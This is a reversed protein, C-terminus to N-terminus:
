KLEELLSVPAKIIPQSFSPVVVFPGSLTIILGIPFTAIIGLFLIVYIEPKTPIPVVFGPNYLRLIEPLKFTDDNDLLVIGISKM